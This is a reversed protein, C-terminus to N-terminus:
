IPGLNWLNECGTHYRTSMWMFALRGWESPSIGGIHSYTTNVGTKLAKKKKKKKFQLVMLWEKLLCADPGPFQLMHFCFCYCHDQHNPKHEFAFTHPFSIIKLSVSSSRIFFLPYTAWHNFEKCIMYREAVSNSSTWSMPKDMLEGSLNHCPARVYKRWTANQRPKSPYLWTELNMPVTSDNSVPVVFHCSNLCLSTNQKSWQVAKTAAINSSMRVCGGGAGSTDPWSENEERTMLMLCHFFFYIGVPSSINLSQM